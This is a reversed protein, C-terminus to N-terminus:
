RKKKVPPKPAAFCKNAGVVFTGSYTTGNGAETTDVVSGVAYRDLQSVVGVGTIRGAFKKGAYKQIDALPLDAVIWSNATDWTFSLNSTVYGRQTPPPVATVSPVDVGLQTTKGAWGSAALGDRVAGSGHAYHSGSAAFQHDGYDFYIAYRHGDALVPGDALKNVKIFVKLDTKTTQFAVGLIDLDPDNSAPSQPYVADGSDDRLDYCGAKPYVSAVATAATASALLPTVGAALVGVAALISVKRSM